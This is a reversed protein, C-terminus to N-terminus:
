SRDLRKKQRNPVSRVSQADPARQQVFEDRSFLDADHMEPSRNSHRRGFKSREDFTLELKRLSSTSWYGAVLAEPTLACCRTWSM